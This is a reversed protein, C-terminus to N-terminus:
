QVEQNKVCDQGSNKTEVQDKRDTVGRRQVGEQQTRKYKSLEAGLGYKVNSYSQM